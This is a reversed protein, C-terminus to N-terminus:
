RDAHITRETTPETPSFAVVALTGACWLAVILLTLRITGRKGNDNAPQLKGHVYLRDADTGQPRPSTRWGENGTTAVRRM